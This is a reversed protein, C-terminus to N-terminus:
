FFCYRAAWTYTYGNTWLSHSTPNAHSQVTLPDLLDLQVHLCVSVCLFVASCARSKLEWINSVHTKKHAACPATSLRVSAHVHEAIHHTRVNLLEVEFLRKLEETNTHTRTSPVIVNLLPYKGDNQFRRGDKHSLKECM